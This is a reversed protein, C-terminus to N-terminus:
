ILSLLDCVGWDGADPLDVAVADVLGTEVDGAGNESVEAVGDSAGVGGEGGSDSVDTGDFGSAGESPPFIPGGALSASAM